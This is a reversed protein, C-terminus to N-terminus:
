SRLLSIKIAEAILYASGAGNPAVDRLKEGGQSVNGIAIDSRRLKRRKKADRALSKVGVSGARVLSSSKASEPQKFM